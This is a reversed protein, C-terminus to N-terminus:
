FLSEPDLAENVVHNAQSLSQELKSRKRRHSPSSKSASSDKEACVAKRANATTKSEAPQTDAM